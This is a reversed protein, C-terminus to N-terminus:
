GSISAPRTSPMTTPAAPGAPGAPDQVRIEEVTYIPVPPATGSPIRQSIARIGVYKGYYQVPDIPSGEPLEIYALTKPPVAGPEVIRWRKPRNGSGDYIGSVRIEGRVVIEDPPTASAAKIQARKRRLEESVDVADSRVERMEAIAAILQQHRELQKIRAQAYLQAVDDEEQEALPRLKQIIPEFVRDATPKAAEAAIEAEIANILLQNDDERATTAAVPPVVPSPRSTVAATEAGPPM